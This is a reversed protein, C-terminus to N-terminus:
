GYVTSDMSNPLARLVAYALRDLPGEFPERVFLRGEQVCVLEDHWVPERPEGFAELGQWCDRGDSGYCVTSHSLLLEGTVEVRDDAGVDRWFLPCGQQFVSVPSLGEEGVPQAQRTNEDGGSGQAPDTGRIWPERSYPPVELVRETASLVSEPQRDGSVHVDGACVASATLFSGDDRVALITHPEAL